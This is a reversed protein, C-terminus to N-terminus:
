LMARYQMLTEMANPEIMNWLKIAESPPLWILNSNSIPKPIISVYDVFERPININKYWSNEIELFSTIIRWLSFKSTWLQEKFEKSLRGLNSEGPLKTGGLITFKGWWSPKSILWINKETKWNYKYPKSSWDVVVSWVAPLPYFVNRIAREFDQNAESSFPLHWHSMYFEILKDPACVYDNPLPLPPDSIEELAFIRKQQSLLFALEAAASKGVYWGPNIFYSFDTQADLSAVKSLFNAETAVYSKTLDDWASYVFWDENSLVKSIQPAIVDIGAKRFIGKVKKFEPYYKKMSGHLTVRTKSM